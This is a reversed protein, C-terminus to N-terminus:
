TDGTVYSSKQKYLANEKQEESLVMGVFCWSNKSNANLVLLNWFWMQLQKFIKAKYHKWMYKALYGTDLRTKSTFGADIYNLNALYTYRIGTSFAPCLLATFRYRRRGKTQFLACDWFTASEFYDSKNIAKQSIRIETFAQRSFANGVNKKYLLWVSFKGRLKCYFLMQITGYVPVKYKWYLFVLYIRYKHEKVEKKRTCYLM